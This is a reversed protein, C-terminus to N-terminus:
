CVSRGVTSGPATTVPVGLHGEAAIAKLLPGSMATSVLAMIVMLSYLPKNLIHLQLGVGLIVLETLGRTNMLTAMVGANRGRIGVLQAGGYAGLLKGAIAVM